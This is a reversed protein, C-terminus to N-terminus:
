ISRSECGLREIGASPWPNLGHQRDPTECIGPRHLERQM